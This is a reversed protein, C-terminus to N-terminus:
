YKNTRYLLPCRFGEVIDYDFNFALGNSFILFFNSKSLMELPSPILLMFSLTTSGQDTQWETLLM